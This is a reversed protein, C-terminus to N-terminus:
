YVERNKEIEKDKRSALLYQDDLSLGKYEAMKEKYSNAEPNNKFFEKEEYFKELEERSNSPADEKKISKNVRKLEVLKKEAKELRDAKTKLVMVEERSYEDKDQSQDQSEENQNDEQYDENTDVDETTDLEEKNDLEAM